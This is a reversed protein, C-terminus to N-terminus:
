ITFMSVVFEIELHLYQQQKKHTVLGICLRFLSGGEEWEPM